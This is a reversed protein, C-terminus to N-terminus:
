PMFKTTDKIKLPTSLTLDVDGNECLNKVSVLLKEKQVRKLQLIKGFIIHWDEKFVRKLDEAIEVGINFFFKKLEDEYNFGFFIFSAEM